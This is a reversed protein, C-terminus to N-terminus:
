PLVEEADPTATPESWVDLPRKGAPMSPHFTCGLAQLHRAVDRVAVQRDREKVRLYIADASFYRRCDATFAQYDHLKEASSGDLLDEKAREVARRLVEEDTANGALVETTAGEMWSNVLTDYLDGDDAPPLAPLRGIANLFAERFSAQRSLEKATLVLKAGEIILEFRTVDSKLVRAREVQFDICEAARELLVEKQEERLEATPLLEAVAHEAAARAYAEGRGAAHGDPRSLVAAALEDADLVGYKALTTLYAADYDAPGALLKGSRKGTGEFLRLLQKHKLHLAKCRASLSAVLPPSASAPAGPSVETALAPTPVDPPSESVDSSM